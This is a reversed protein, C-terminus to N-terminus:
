DINTFRSILCSQRHLLHHCVKKFGTSELRLAANHVAHFPTPSANVFQLFRAAAEPTTAALVQMPKTCVTSPGTIERECDHNLSIRLM